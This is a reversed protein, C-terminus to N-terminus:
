FTTEVVKRKATAVLGDYRLVDIEGHRQFAEQLLDLFRLSSSFIIIKEFPYTQRLWDYLRLITQIRGLEAILDERTKVQELWKDRADGEDDKVASQLGELIGGGELDALQLHSKTAAESLM